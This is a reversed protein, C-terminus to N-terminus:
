AICTRWTQFRGDTAASEDSVIRNHEQTSVASDARFRALRVWLAQFFLVIYYSLNCEAASSVRNPIEGIAKADFATEDM